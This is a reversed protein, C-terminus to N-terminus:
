DFPVTLRQPLHLDRRSLARLYIHSEKLSLSITGICAPRTLVKQALSLLNPMSINTCEKEQKRGRKSLVVIDDFSLSLHVSAVFLICCLVTGPPIEQCVVATVVTYSSRTRNLLWTRQHLCYAGGMMYGVYRQRVYVGYSHTCVLYAFIGMPIFEMHCM